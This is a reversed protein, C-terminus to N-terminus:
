EHADSMAPAGATPVPDSAEKVLLADDECQPNATIICSTSGKKDEAATGYEAAKLALHGSPTMWDLVRAGTGFLINYMEALAIIMNEHGQELILIARM